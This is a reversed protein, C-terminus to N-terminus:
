SKKECYNKLRFLFLAWHYTCFRHYDNVVRWNNHSLTVTTTGNNEVVNFVVQTDTWDEDSSICHWVIQCDTFKILKMRTIYGEDFDFEHIHNIEPIVKLKKTWIAALGAETNLTELVQSAPAKIVNLLEIAHM